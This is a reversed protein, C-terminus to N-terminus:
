LQEELAKLLNDFDSKRWYNSDIKYRGSVLIVKSEFFKTGKYVHVEFYKKDISVNISKGFIPSVILETQLFGVSKVMKQGEFFLYLAYFSTLLLFVEFSNFASAAMVPILYFGFKMLFYVPFLIKYKKM